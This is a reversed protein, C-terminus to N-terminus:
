RAAEAAIDCDHKCDLMPSKVSDPLLDDDADEQEEVTYDPLHYFPSATQPLEMFKQSGGSDVNKGRRPLPSRPSRM